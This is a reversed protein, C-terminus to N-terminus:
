PQVQWRHWPSTLRWQSSLYALPRMPAPLSEIDLRARLGFTYSLGPKLARRAVVAVAAISGMAATAAALTPFISRAGTLLNSVVYRESLAHYELRYGRRLEAIQSDLWYDRARTVEIEVQATLPVGHRLAKVAEESWRYRLKADVVYFGKVIRAAARQVTIGPEAACAARVGLLAALVLWNTSASSRM